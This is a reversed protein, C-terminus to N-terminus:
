PAVQQPQAASNRRHMAVVILDCGVPILLAAAIIVAVQWRFKYWPLLRQESM